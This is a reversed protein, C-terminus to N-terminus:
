NGKNFFLISFYETEIYKKVKDIANSSIFSKESILIENGVVLHFQILLQKQNKDLYEIEIPNFEFRVEFTIDNEIIELTKKIKRRIGRLKEEEDIHDLSFKYHLDPIYKNRAFEKAIRIFLVRSKIDNSVFTNLNVDDAIFEIFNSIYLHIDNETITVNKESEISKFFPGIISKLYNLYFHLFKRSHEKYFEEAGSEEAVAFEIDENSFVIAHKGNQVIIKVTNNLFNSNVKKIIIKNLELKFFDVLLYYTMWTKIYTIFPDIWIWFDDTSSSPRNLNESLVSTIAQELDEPIDIFEREKRKASSYNNYEQEFHLSNKSYERSFIKTSYLGSNKMFSFLFNQLNMNNNM